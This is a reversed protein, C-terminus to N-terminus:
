LRFIEVAENHVDRLFREPRVMGVHGLAEVIEGDCEATLTARRLRFAQELARQRNLFLGDPPVM